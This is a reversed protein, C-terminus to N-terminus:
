PQVFPQWLLVFGFSGSFYTGSLFVLSSIMSYWAGFNSDNGLGDAVKGNFFTMGVIDEVRNCCILEIFIFLVFIFSLLLELM